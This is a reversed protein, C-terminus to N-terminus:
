KPLVSARCQGQRRRHAHARCNRLQARGAMAREQLATVSRWLTGTPSLLRKGPEFACCRRVEGRGRGRLRTETTSAAVLKGRERLTRAIATQTGMADITVICGEIDLVQLLQPIATIENSKEETAVQGLVVGAGAALASM